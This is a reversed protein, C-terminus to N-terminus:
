LKQMIEINKNKEDIKYKGIKEMLAKNLIIDAPTEEATTLEIDYLYFQKIRVDRLTVKQGVLVEGDENMAQEKNKFDNKGLKGLQLLRLCTSVSITGSKAKEMLVARIGVGNVIVDFEPNRDPNEIYSIKNLDEINGLSAFSALASRNGDSPIFDDRLVSFETRRNLQHAQERLDKDSISNIYEETLTIGSDFDAIKSNLM